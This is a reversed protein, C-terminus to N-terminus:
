PLFTSSQVRGDVSITPGDSSEALKALLAAFEVFQGLSIAAVNKYLVLHFGPGVVFAQNLPPAAVNFQSM